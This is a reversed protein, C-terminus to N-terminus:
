AFLRQAGARVAATYVLRVTPDDHFEPSRVETVIGSRFEDLSLLGSSDVDWRAFVAQIADQLEGETPGQDPTEVSGVTDSEDETGTPPQVPVAAAPPAYAAETVPETAPTAPDAPPPPM